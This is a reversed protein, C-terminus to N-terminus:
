QDKTRRIICPRIAQRNIFCPCDTRQDIRCGFRLLRVKLYRRLDMMAIKQQRNRGTTAAGCKRPQQTLLQFFFIRFTEPLKNFAQHTDTLFEPVTTAATHRMLCDPTLNHIFTNNIQHSRTLKVQRLFLYSM